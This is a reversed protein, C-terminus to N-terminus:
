RHRETRVVQGPPLQEVFASVAEDVRDADRAEFVLRVRYGPDDLVPYSGLLVDPFAAVVRDLRPALTWEDTTVYVTSVLRPRSAPLLGRDRIAAFSRRLLKPIGALVCVRDVVLAPFRTQASEVLVTGRPIRAMKLHAEDLRDGFVQKVREVLGADLELPRGLAQAVAAVTIDDHTPGIGGSTIVLDVRRLLDLLAEVIEDTEDPVVVARRVDIGLAFLETSLYHLNEDVVKGSLLENGILLVGATPFAV